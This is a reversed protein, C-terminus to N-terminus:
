FANNKDIKIKDSTSVLCKMKGMLDNKDWYLECNFCGMFCCGVDIIMLYGISDYMNDINPVNQIVDKSLKM